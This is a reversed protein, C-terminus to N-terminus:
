RRAARSKRHLRGGYRSSPAWRPGL